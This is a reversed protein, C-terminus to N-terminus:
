RRRPRYAAKSYTGAAQLPWVLRRLFRDAGANALPDPRQNTM